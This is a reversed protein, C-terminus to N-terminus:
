DPSKASEAPQYPPYPVNSIRSMTTEIWAEADALIADAKRGDTAIVPGIVVHITGRRKLFGRKPWCEGANHAVPVIPYGTKAALLAGGIKYRKRTGAPVRTGEPFIVLWRGTDLLKKGKRLLQSIAKRGTGRNIAVARMSALGWGFFPVWLLERKVIFSHAPFFLQLAFTEWTSQHKSFIISTTAPINELGEVRYNVGCLYKLILVNLVAYQRMFQYHLAPPIPYLLVGLLSFVITLAIM